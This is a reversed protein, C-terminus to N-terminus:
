NWRIQYKWDTITQWFELKAREPLSEAEEAEEEEAEEVEVVINIEQMLDAM